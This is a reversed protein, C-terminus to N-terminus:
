ETAELVANRMVEPGLIHELMCYLMQGEKLDPVWYCKRTIWMEMHLILSPSYLLTLKRKQVDSVNALSGALPPQAWSNSKVVAQRHDESLIWSRLERGDPDVRFNTFHVQPACHDKSIFFLSRRLPLPTSFHRWITQVSQLQSNCTDHFFPRFAPHNAQVPQDMSYRSNQSPWKYPQTKIRIWMFNLFFCMAPGKLM